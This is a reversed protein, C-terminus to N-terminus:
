KMGEQFSKVLGGVGKAVGHPDSASQYLAYGLTGYIAFILTLIVVFIATIARRVLRFDADFDDHRRYKM